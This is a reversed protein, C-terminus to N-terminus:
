ISLVISQSPSGTVRRELSAPEFGLRCKTLIETIRLQYRLMSTLLYTPLLRQLLNALCFCRRLLTTKQAFRVESNGGGGFFISDGNEARWVGFIKADRKVKCPAGEMWLM